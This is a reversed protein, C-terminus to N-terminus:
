VASYMVGCIAAWARAWAGCLCFGAAIACATLLVTFGLMELGKILIYNTQM